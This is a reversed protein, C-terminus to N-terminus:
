RVSIEYQMLCDHKMEFRRQLYDCSGSGSPAARSNVESCFSIFRRKLVTKSVGPRAGAVAAASRRQTGPSPGRRSRRASRAARRGARAHGLVVDFMSTSSLTRVSDPSRLASCSSCRPPSSGARARRRRRRAARERQGLADVGLGDPRAEVVAHELDPDRLGLCRLGRLTAISTPSAGVAISPELPRPRWTTSGTRGVPWVGRRGASDIRRGRPTRAELDECGCARGAARAGAGAHQASAWPSTRVGANTGSAVLAATLVSSTRRPRAVEAVVHDQAVREVQEEVGPWSSISCSPPRCSNM